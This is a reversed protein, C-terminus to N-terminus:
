AMSENELAEMEAMVELYHEESLASVKDAGYKNLIEILQKGLGKRNLAVMKDRIDERTIVDIREDENTTWNNIIVEEEKPQQEEAVEVNTFDLLGKEELIDLYEKLEKPNCPNIQIYFEM